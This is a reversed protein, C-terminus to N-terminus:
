SRGERASWQRWGWRRGGNVGGKERRNAGETFVTEVGGGSGAVVLTAVWSRFQYIM